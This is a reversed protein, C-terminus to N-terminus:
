GDSRGGFVLKVGFFLFVQCHQRAGRCMMGCRNGCLIGFNGSVGRNGTGDM